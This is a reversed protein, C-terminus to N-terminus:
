IGSWTKYYPRKSRNAHCYIVSSVAIHFMNNYKMYRIQVETM